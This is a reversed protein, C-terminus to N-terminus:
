NKIRFSPPLSDNSLIMVRNLYMGTNWNTFTVPDGSSWVYKSWWSIDNMGIWANVPLRIM